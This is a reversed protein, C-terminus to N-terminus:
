SQKIPHRNSDYRHYVYTVDYNYIVNEKRQNIHDVVVLEDESYDCNLYESPLEEDKHKNLYSSSYHSAKINLHDKDAQEYSGYYVVRKDLGISDNGIEENFHILSNDEYLIYGDIVKVDNFEEHTLDGPYNFYDYVIQDLFYYKPFPNSNIIDVDITEDKSWNGKSLHITLKCNDADLQSTLIIGTEANVIKYIDYGKYVDIVIDDNITYQPQKITVDFQKTLTKDDKLYTILLKSNDTDLDYSLISINDSHEIINELNFSESLDIVSDKKINIDSCGVLLITLLILFIKKM